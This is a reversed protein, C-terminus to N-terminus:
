RDQHVRARFEALGLLLLRKLDATESASWTPAFHEGPPTVAPLNCGIFLKEYIHNARTDAGTFLSERHPLDGLMNWANMLASCDLVDANSECWGQIADFDYLPPRESSVVREGSQGAERAADESPFTPILGVDNVVIRDPADGSEWLFIRDTGGLRAICLYVVTDSM